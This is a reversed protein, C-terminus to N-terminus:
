GESTLYRRLDRANEVAHGDVDNNFYVYVDLGAALEEEIRDAEATLFQHSYGGAYREDGPGHFRLYTWDVTRIRPHDDILDHIVLAAGHAELVEYVPDVLWSRDRLEIAWRHESPAEELFARLREPNAKWRPPLQELIPGLRYHLRGAAELFTGVHDRPDKLKKMHTGYRSYKLAYLFGEPAKERWVDFTDPEPLSYFTNNVEVTDFREAYHELWRSKPLDEPYLRGRWHDYQYGSTGVRVRGRRDPRSEDAM